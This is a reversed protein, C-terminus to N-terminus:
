WELLDLLTNLKENIIKLFEIDAKGCKDIGILEEDTYSVKILISHNTLFVYDTYSVEYGDSSSRQYVIESEEELIRSYVGESKLDEVPTNIIKNFIKDM